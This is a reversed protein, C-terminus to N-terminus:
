QAIPINTDAHRVQNTLIKCASQLERISLQNIFSTSISLSLDSCDKSNNHPTIWTSVRWGILSRIHESIERNLQQVVTDDLIVESYRPLIWKTIYSELLDVLNRRSAQKELSQMNFM